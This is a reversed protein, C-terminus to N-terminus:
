FASAKHWEELTNKFGLEAIAGKPFKVVNGFPHGYM